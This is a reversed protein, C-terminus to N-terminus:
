QEDQNTNIHHELLLQLTEAQHYIKSVLDRLEFLHPNDQLDKVEVSEQEALSREFWNQLEIQVQEYPVSRFREMIETLSSFNPNSSHPKLEDMANIKFWFLSDALFPPLFIPTVGLRDSTLGQSAKSRM